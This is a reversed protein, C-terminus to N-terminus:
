LGILAAVRPPGQGSSDLSFSLTYTDGLYLGSELVGQEIFAVPAAGPRYGVFGFRETASRAEGLLVAAGEATFGRAQVVRAGIHLTQPPHNSRGLLFGEIAQGDALRGAFRYLQLEALPVPSRIALHQVPATQTIHVSAQTYIQGQADALAMFAALSDNRGLSGSGVWWAGLALALVMALWGTSFGFGAM